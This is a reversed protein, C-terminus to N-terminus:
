RSTAVVGRSSEAQNRGLNSLRSGYARIFEPKPFQVQNVSARHLTGVGMPANLNAASAPVRAPAFTRESLYQQTIQLRYWFFALSQM